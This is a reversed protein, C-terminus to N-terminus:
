GRTAAVALIARTDGRRADGGTEGEDGWIGMASAVGPRYWWMRCKAGYLRCM